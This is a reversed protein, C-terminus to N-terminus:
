VGSEQNIGRVMADWPGFPAKEGTEGQEPGDGKHVICRKAPEGRGVAGERDVAGLGPNHHLENGRECKEEGGVEM